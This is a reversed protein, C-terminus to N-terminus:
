QSTQFSHITENLHAIQQILDSPRNWNKMQLRMEETMGSNKLIDEIWQDMESGKIFDISLIHITLEKMMEEVGGWFEKKGVLTVNRDGGMKKITGMLQVSDFKGNVFPVKVVVAYDSWNDGLARKLDKEIEAIDENLPAAILLPQGNGQIKLEKIVSLFIQRLFSPIVFLNSKKDQTSKPSLMEYAQTVRVANSVDYEFTQRVFKFLAAIEDVSMQSHERFKDKSFWKSAEIHPMGMDELTEHSGVEALFQPLHAQHTEKETEHLSVTLTGEQNQSHDVFEHVDIEPLPTGQVEVVDMNIGLKKNVEELTSAYELASTVIFGASEIVAKVAEFSKHLPRAYVIFDKVNTASSLKEVVSGYGVERLTSIFGNWVILNSERLNYLNRLLPLWVKETYREGYFSHDDDPKLGHERKFKKLAEDSILPAEDDEGQSIDGEELWSHEIKKTMKIQPHAEELIDQLTSYTKEPIGDIKPFHRQEFHKYVLEAGEEGYVGWALLQLLALPNEKIAGWLGESIYITYPRSQSSRMALWRPDEKIFDHFLLLSRHPKPGIPSSPSSSIGPSGQQPSSQSGGQTKEEVEKRWEEVFSPFIIDYFIRKEQEYADLTMHEKLWPAFNLEDFNPALARVKEPTDSNELTIKRHLQGLKHSELVRLIGKIVNNNVFSAFAMGINRNSTFWLMTNLVNGRATEISHDGSGYYSGRIQGQYLLFNLGMFVLWEKEKHSALKDIFREGNNNKILEELRWALRFDGMSEEETKIVVVNSQQEIRNKIETLLNEKGNEEIKLYGLANQIYKEESEAMPIRIDGDTPKATNWVYYALRTPDHIAAIHYQLMFEALGDEVGDGISAGNKIISEGSEGTELSVIETDVPTIDVSDLRVAVSKLYNRLNLEDNTREPSETRYNQEAIKEMRIAFEESVQKYKSTLEKTKENNGNSLKIENTLFKLLEIAEKETLPHEKAEQWFVDDESRYGLVRVFDFLWGRLLQIDEKKNSSSIKGNTGTAVFNVATKTDNRIYDWIATWGIDWRLHTGEHALAEAMKEKDSSKVFAETFYLTRRKSGVRGMQWLGDSVYHLFQLQEKSKLKSARNKHSSGKEKLIGEIYDLMYNEVELEEGTNTVLIYTDGLPAYLDIEKHKDAWQYIRLLRERANKSAKRYPDRIYNAKRAQAHLFVVLDYLAQWAEVSGDEGNLISIFEERDQPEGHHVLKYLKWALPYNIDERLKVMVIYSDMIMAKIPAPTYELAGAIKAWPSVKEKFFVSNEDNRAIGWDFEEIKIDGGRDRPKPSHLYSSKGTTIAYKIAFKVIDWFEEDPEGEHFASGGLDNLTTKNTRAFLGRVFSVSKVAISRLQSLVLDKYKTFLPPAKKAAGGMALASFEEVTNVTNPRRPEGPMNGSQERLMWQSNRASIKFSKAEAFPSIVTTFLFLSLVAKATLRIWRSKLEMKRIKM